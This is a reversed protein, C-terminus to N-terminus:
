LFNFKFDSFTMKKKENIKFNVKDSKDLLILESIKGMHIYKNSNTVLIKNKKTNKKNSKLNAFVSDKENENENKEKKTDEKKMEENEKREKEKDELEKNRDVYLSKCDFVKVYKRAVTELYSYNINTNSWYEFGEKESNWRLFVSGDPTNENVYRNTKISEKDLNIDEKIDKLPYKDEYKVEEEEYFKFDDEIQEFKLNSVLILSILFGTGGSVIAVIVKFCEFLMSNATEFLCVYVGIIGMLFMQKDRIDMSNIFKYAKNEKVLEIMFNFFDELM